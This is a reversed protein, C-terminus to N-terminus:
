LRKTSMAGTQDSLVATLGAAGHGRDILREVVRGIEALGGDGLRSGARMEVLQRVLPLHEDLSAPGRPYDAAALEAATDPAAAVVHGLQTAATQTFEDLDIGADAALQLARLLGLQADYWIGFLALDWVAAAEPTAGVFRPPSLQSLTDRHRAFADPSGGYLIVADDTGINEPATQVGADLYDAGLAAVREAAARADDPTGTCLVAITRGSLPPELQGLVDLVARYDTLAVLTLDGAAVAEGPTAAPRVGAAALDALRAATRNWAVVDTGTALLRRVVATGIAGTGLVAVSGTM